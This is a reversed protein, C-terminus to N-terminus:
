DKIEFSVLEFTQPDFSAEVRRGKEDIADAEYCGDDAKIRRVQWGDAELKLQLAERPQWHTMPVNCDDSAIAAGAGSIALIAVIISLTRTM